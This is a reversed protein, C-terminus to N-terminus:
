QCQVSYIHIDSIINHHKTNQVSFSNSRKLVTLVLLSWRGVDHSTAIIHIKTVLQKMKRICIM